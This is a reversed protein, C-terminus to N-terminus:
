SLLWLAAPSVSCIRFHSHYQLRCCPSRCPIYPLLGQLFGATCSAGEFTAISPLYIILEPINSMSASVFGPFPPSICSVSASFSSAGFYVADAGNQVAAKLCEFDGVPSLLEIM